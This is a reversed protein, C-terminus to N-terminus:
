FVPGFCEAAGKREYEAEEQDSRGCLSWANEEELNEKNKQKTKQTEVHGGVVVEKENRQTARSDSM